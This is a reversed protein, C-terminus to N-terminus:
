LSDEVENAMPSGEGPVPQAAASAAQQQRSSSQPPARERRVHLLCCPLQGTRLLMWGAKGCLGREM